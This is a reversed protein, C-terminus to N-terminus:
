EAAKRSETGSAWRTRPTGPGERRERRSFRREPWRHRTAGIRIKDTSGGKVWCCNRLVDIEISATKRRFGDQLRGPRFFADGLHWRRIPFNAAAAPSHM